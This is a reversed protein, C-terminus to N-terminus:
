SNPYRPYYYVTSFRMISREVEGPNLVRLYREKLRTVDILILQTVLAGNELTLCGFESLRRESVEM